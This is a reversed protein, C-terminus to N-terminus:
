NHTSVFSKFALGNIRLSGDPNALGIANNGDAAYWIVYPLGLAISENLLGPILDQSLYFQVMEGAVAQLGTTSELWPVAQSMDVPEAQYWHFNVYDIGTEKYGAILTQANQLKLLLGPDNALIPRTPNQSNPLNALIRQGRVVGLAFASKAFQDAAAWQGSTWLYDWYAICLGESTLGGNTIKYGKAHAVEAAYSLEQLYQQPTDSTFMGGDEENEIVVTAPQESDLQSALDAKYTAPNTVPCGEPPTPQCVNVYTVIVAFGARELGRILQAEGGDPPNVATDQREYGVGLSEGVQLFGPENFFIGFRNAPPSAASAAGATLLAASTLLGPLLRRSFDNSSCAM